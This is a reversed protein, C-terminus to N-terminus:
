LFCSLSSQMYLSPILAASSVNPPGSCHLGFSCDSRFIAAAAATNNSNNKKKKEIEHRIYEGARSTNARKEFVDHSSSMSLFHLGGNPMVISGQLLIKSSNRDQDSWFILHVLGKGGKKTENEQM